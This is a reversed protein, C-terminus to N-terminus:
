LPRAYDIQWDSDPLHLEGNKLQEFEEPTVEVVMTPFVIDGGPGMVVPMIGAPVTDTNIELLKIPEKPEAERPSVIRFIHTITPEIQKHSSALQQAVINKDTKESIQM